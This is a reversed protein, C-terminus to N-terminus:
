SAAPLAREMTLVKGDSGPTSPSASGTASRRQMPGTFEFRSPEGARFPEIQYARVKYHLSRLSIRLLRAAKQKNGATRELAQLIAAREADKKIDRMLSKM